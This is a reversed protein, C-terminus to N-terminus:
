KKDKKAEEKKLRRFDQLLRENVIDRLDKSAETSGDIAITLKTMAEANSKLIETMKDVQAVWLKVFITLVSLALRAVGIAGYQVWIEM